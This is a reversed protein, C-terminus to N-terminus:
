LASVQEVRERERASRGVVAINRGAAEISLDMFTVVEACKRFPFFFISKLLKYYEDRGRVVRPPAVPHWHTPPVGRYVGNWSQIEQRQLM